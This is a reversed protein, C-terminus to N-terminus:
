FEVFNSSQNKYNLPLLNFLYFKCATNEIVYFSSTFIFELGYEYIIIAILNKNLQKKHQLNNIRGSNQKLIFRYVYTSNNSDFNLIM